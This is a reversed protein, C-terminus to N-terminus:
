DLFVKKKLRKYSDEFLIRNSILNNKEIYERICERIFDSLSKKKYLCMNELFEREKTSIKLSVKEIRKDKSNKLNFNINKFNINQM